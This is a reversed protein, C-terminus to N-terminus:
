GAEAMGLKIRKKRRGSRSKDRNRKLSKTGGNREAM